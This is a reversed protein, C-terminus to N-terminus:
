ARSDEQEDTDDESAFDENDENDASDEPEDEDFDDEADEADAEEAELDAGGGNEEGRAAAAAEDARIVDDIKRSMEVGYAISTDPLFRLEPTTRLNVSVALQHRIFGAANELARLTDALAEGSGLVSIYVKCTKLDPAVEARTVSTMPSLRPDKIEQQIIHSLEQRVAENIRTNKISNKRL